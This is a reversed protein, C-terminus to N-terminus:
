LWPGPGRLFPSISPDCARPIYSSCSEGAGSPRVTLVSGSGEGAKQTIGCQPSAEQPVPPQVQKQSWLSTVTISVM